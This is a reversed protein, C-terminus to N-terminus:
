SDTGRSRELLHGMRAFQEVTLTEGRADLDIEAEKALADVWEPPGLSKWANRLTKRRAHFAGSVVQRFAVTERTLLTARPEFLVVASAVRPAPYFAGSGVVFARKVVFRAQVFVSLAGYDKGGAPAALRDGVEKQVLYVAREVDGDFLCTKELLPGTIQYPLNGALVRRPSDGLEAQWDAAKADAELVRLRGSERQEAFLEHLPGILDRDREIATVTHGRDLIRDTLAGLGAGIELVHLPSGEGTHREGGTVLDAIREAVSPDSLFNQGFSHKPKLGFRNLLEKPSPLTM